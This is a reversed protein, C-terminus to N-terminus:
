PEIGNAKVAEIVDRVSANENIYVINIEPHDIRFVRFIEDAFAQGIMDVGEFDLFVEKFADFRALLRKAQSRSVLNENGYIALKAPVHTTSFGTDVGSYRDFIEKLTRKSFPDINLFISTGKIDQKADELLWGEDGDDFRTYFLEGSLISFKDFVRSTFFVGQGSHHKPDTTLKGKALELLAHRQDELKYAKKIKNFIGVGNDRIDIEIKRTHYTVNVTCTDAESHDIVNNFMETFGYQCITLITDKPKQPALLPSIKERWVKDEALGDEIKIKFSEEFLKRFHYSTSKTNGISEILGEEQLKKIHEHASQRSIEFAAAVASVLGSSFKELNEIIFNRIDESTHKRKM